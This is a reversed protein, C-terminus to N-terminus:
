SSGQLSEDLKKLAEEVSKMNMHIKDTMPSAPYKELLKQLIEHSSRLYREKKLPDKERKAALFIKAARNREQNIWREIAKEKLQNIEGAREEEFEMSEINAIVQDFKEEELLCKVTDLNARKKSILAIKEELYNEEARDLSKLAQDINEKESGTVAEERKMVLLDRAERFKKEGVLTEVQSFLSPETESEKVWSQGEPDPSESEEVPQRITRPKESLKRNLSQLMAYHEDAADTLKEYGILAKQKEGLQIQWEAIRARLYHYDPSAGLERIIGEGISVAEKLMGAEGLALAFLLGIESSLADSGLAKKLNLCRDIVGQYDGALYASLIEHRMDALLGIPDKTNKFGRKPRSFYTEKTRNLDSFLSLLADRYQTQEIPVHSAQRLAKFSKLLGEALGRDEGDLDEIIGELFLISEDLVGVPILPM